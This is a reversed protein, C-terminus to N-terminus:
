LSIAAMMSGHLALAYAMGPLTAHLPQQAPAVGPRTRRKGGQGSDEEVIPCEVCENPANRAKNCRCSTLSSASTREMGNLGDKLERALEGLWIGVGREEIHAFSEGDVGASGGNRRVQAWAEQLFDERWLKDSLAHFRLEPEEKAKRM